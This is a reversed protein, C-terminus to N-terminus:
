EVAKAGSVANLQQIAAVVFPVLQMSSTKEDTAIFIKCAINKHVFLFYHHRQAIGLAKMNKAMGEGERFVKLGQTGEIVIMDNIPVGGEANEEMMRDHWALADVESNFTWRIDVIRQYQQGGAAKNNYVHLRTNMEGATLGYSTFFAAPIFINDANTEKFSPPRTVADLLKPFNTCSQMMRKAAKVGLEQMKNKDAMFEPSILHENLMQALAISRCLNFSKQIETDTRDYNFSDTCNCLYTSFKKIVSDPVQAASHQLLFSALACVLIKKM